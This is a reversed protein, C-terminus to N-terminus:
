KVTLRAVNSRKNPKLTLPEGRLTADVASANGIVVTRPGHIAVTASEGATLLRSFVVRNTDIATVEVWADERASFVLAGRSATAEDSAAVPESVPPTVSAASAAPAAVVTGTTSSEVEPAADEDPADAERSDPAPAAVEGAARSLRQLSNGVKDLMSSILGARWAAWGAAAVVVVAAAIALQTGSPGRRDTIEPFRPESFTAGAVRRTAPPAAVVPAPESGMVALMPAPDVKLLKAYARVFGRVVAMPPLAKYNDDEIAQIQRPALNLQNAVEEISWGREKRYAALQAGPTPVTRDSLHQQEDGPNAVPEMSENMGTDSM